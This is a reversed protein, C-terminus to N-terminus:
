IGIANRYSVHINLYHDDVLSLNNCRPFWSSPYIPTNSLSPHIYIINVITPSDAYITFWNTAVMVVPDVM